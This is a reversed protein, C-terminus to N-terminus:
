ITLEISVLEMGGLPKVNCYTHYIPKTSHSLFTRSLHCNERNGGGVLVFVLDMIELVQQTSSALMTGSKWMGRFRSSM